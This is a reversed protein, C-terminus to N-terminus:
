GFFFNYLWGHKKEPPPQIPQEVLQEVLQEVPQSSTAVATLYQQQSTTTLAKSVIATLEAIQTDKQQIQQKLYEIQENLSNIYDSTIGETATTEPQNVPQSPQEVPKDVGFVAKLAEEQIMTRGDPKSIFQQLPSNINKIHKYIAQPTVGAIAAFESVTYEAM